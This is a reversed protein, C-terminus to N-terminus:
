IGQALIIIRVKDLPCLELARFIKERPPFVLGRAYEALVKEQLVRIEQSKLDEHLMRRWDDPILGMIEGADNDVVSPAAVVKIDPAGRASTEEQTTAPTVSTSTRKKFYDRLNMKPKQSSQKTQSTKRETEQEQHHRNDFQSILRHTV